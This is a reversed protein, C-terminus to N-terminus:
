SKPADPRGELLVREVEKVPDERGFIYGCLNDFHSRAAGPPRRREAERWNEITTADVKQEGINRWSAVGIAVKLAAVELPVGTKVLVELCASAVRKLHAKQGSRSRKLPQVAFLETGVGREFDILAGAIALFPAALEPNEHRVAIFRAAAQCALRAGERGNDGKVKFQNFAYFLSRLFEENAARLSLWPPAGAPVGKM